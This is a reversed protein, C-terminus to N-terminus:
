CARAGWSAYREQLRLIRPAYEVNERFNSASRGANFGQVMIWDDPDAGAAAAKRRDRIVWGMGGNYARLAFVWRACETLGGGMPQLQRRLSAMYRDRCAFAWAPSFPNAPACDGPFRAAMDAATGPMFQALGQAGAWSTAQPQWASEQHIQGAELAVPAGPGHIRYASRTMAARYQEAAAPPAANVNRLLRQSQAAQPATSWAVAILAACLVVVLWAVRSDPRGAHM